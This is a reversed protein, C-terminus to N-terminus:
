VKEGAWDVLLSGMAIRMIQRPDDGRDRGVKLLVLASDIVADDELAKKMDNLNLFKGEHTTLCRTKPAHKPNLKMQGKCDAGM